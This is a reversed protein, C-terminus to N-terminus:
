IQKKESRQFVDSSSGTDDICSGDDYLSSYQRQQGAPNGIGRIFDYSATHTHATFFDLQSQEHKEEKIINCFGATKKEAPYREKTDTVNEKYFM